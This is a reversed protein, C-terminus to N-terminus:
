ANAGEAEAIKDKLELKARKLEAIKSEDPMPRNSEEHLEAEMAAHKRKLSDLHNELAM